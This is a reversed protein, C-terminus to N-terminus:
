SGLDGPAYKSNTWLKTLFTRAILTAASHDTTTKEITQIQKDFDRAPMESPSHPPRQFPNQM